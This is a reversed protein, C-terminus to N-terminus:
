CVKLDEMEARMREVADQPVDHVSQYNGNARIVVVTYGHDRALALYPEIHTQKINTNDVVVPSLGRLMKLRARDQCDQHAAPLQEKDFKYNGNEDIMWDDASVIWDSLEQAITTKGSGPVGQMLVLLKIRPM